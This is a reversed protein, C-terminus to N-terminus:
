ASSSPISSNYSRRRSGYSIRFRMASAAARPVRSDSRASNCRRICHAQMRRHDSAPVRGANVSTKAGPPKRPMPLQSTCCDVQRFAGWRKRTGRKRKKEPCPPPIRVAIVQAAESVQHFAGADRDGHAERRLALRVAHPSWPVATASTHPRRPRDGIAGRTRLIPFPPTGRVLRRSKMRGELPVKQIEERQRVLLPRKTGSASPAGEDANGAALRSAPRVGAPYRWPCKM